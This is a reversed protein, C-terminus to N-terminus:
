ILFREIEENSIVEGYDKKSFALASKVRRLYYPLVNAKM